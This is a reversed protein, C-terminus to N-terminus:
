ARSPGRSCACPTGTCRPCGDAYRRAAEEMDVGTMSALTCLWAFVDGFEERLNQPERARLARALEGVEEVFWMHTSALGRAQDREGYIAEIQEQFARIGRHPPLTARTGEPSASM